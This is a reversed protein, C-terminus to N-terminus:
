NVEKLMRVIQISKDLSEPEIVVAQHDLKINLIRCFMQINELGIEHSYYIYWNSNNEFEKLTERNLGSICYDLFIINENEHEANFCTRCCDYYSFFKAKIKCEKLSERALKCFKSKNIGQM